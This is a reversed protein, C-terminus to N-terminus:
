VWTMVLSRWATALGRSERSFGYDRVCVGILVLPVSVGGPPVFGHTEHRQWIMRVIIGTFSVDHICDPM